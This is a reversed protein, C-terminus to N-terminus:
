HEITSLCAQSVTLDPSEAVFTEAREENLVMKWFSHGGERRKSIQNECSRADEMKAKALIGKQPNSRRNKQEDNCLSELTLLLLSKASELFMLLRRPSKRWYFVDDYKHTHKTMMTDHVCPCM